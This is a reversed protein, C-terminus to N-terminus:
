TTASGAAVIDSIWRRYEISPRDTKLHVNDVLDLRYDTWCHELVAKDEDWVQADFAIIDAAPREEESDSRVVMQLQRTTTATAPTCAKVMLHVVGDPYTIRNIMLFPGWLRNVTSRITGGIEGPRSEVAVEYTMVMGLEDREVGPVDVEPREPTGFSNQHVWAIHAPDINNDILHLATCDWDSEPEYVVRWGKEDIDPLDPIPQRPEDLAVWVWGYREAARYTTLAAKPPVAAGEALQPIRTARGDEGFAWGHYPCVLGCTEVWGTSLRADRHPCRNTAASVIGPAPSWLVLEEGLLHRTVPGDALADARAVPYWFHRFAPDDLLHSGTSSSLDLSM